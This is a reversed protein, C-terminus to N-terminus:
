GGWESAQKTGRGCGHGGSRLGVDLTCRTRGDLTREASVGHRGQGRHSARRDSVRGAYLKITSELEVSRRTGHDDHDREPVPGSVQRGEPKDHIEVCVAVLGNGIRQLGWSTDGAALPTGSPVQDPYCRQM